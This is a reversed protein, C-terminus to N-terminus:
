PSIGRKKMELKVENRRNRLETAVNKKSVGTSVGIGGSSGSHHGYSGRGLGFSVSSGTRRQEVVDIQDELQYYYLTLQGDALQHYDQALLEKTKAKHNACGSVLGLSLMVFSVLMLTRVPTSLSITM